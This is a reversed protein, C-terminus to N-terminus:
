SGSQGQVPRCLNTMKEYHEKDLSKMLVCLAETGNKLEEVPIPSLTTMDEPSDAHSELQVLRELAKIRSAPFEPPLKKEVIDVARNMKSAFGDSGPIRFAFFTDLIKRLVNPMAYFFLMDDPNDKFRLMLHFLYQYESDYERIHKSMEVLSSHRREELNGRCEIFLLTAEPDMYKNKPYAKNRLWKKIENMFHLNHTLIILQDARKLKDRILAVAYNINGTDLSSVPDDLVVICDEIKRGEEELRALFYCFTLATREGDSLTGEVPQGNRMLKYASGHDDEISELRIERHGLYATLLDNVKEAALHHDRMQQEIQSKKKELNHLRDELDEVEKKIKSIEKEIESYNDYIGYLHHRIIKEEAKKKEEEFGDVAKNHNDIVTNLTQIASELAAVSDNVEQLQTTRDLSKGAQGKKEAILKKIAGLKQELGGIADRVSERAERADRRLTAVFKDPSPLDTRLGRLKDLLEEHQRELEAGEKQFREFGRELAARLNSLREETLGNGCFLCTKLEHKEHYDLGEKVWGLMTQHEQLDKLVIKEVTSALWDSLKDHLEVWPGRDFTVPTISDPVDKGSLIEENEKLEYESLLDGDKKCYKKIEGDLRKANFKGTSSLSKRIQEAWKTKKLSLKKSKESIEKEKEGKKYSVNDINENLKNLEGQREIQERGLYTIPAARGDEWKFNAETFDRNFVLVRDKLADLNRHPTIKRKDKLTLTFTGGEPLKNSYEGKELSAFVRSLVTKGTGNFGYILNYRLLEVDSHNGSKGPFDAFVGLRKLEKISSIIPDAM